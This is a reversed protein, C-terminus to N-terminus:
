DFRCTTVPFPSILILNRVRLLNISFIFIHAHLQTIRIFHFWCFYVQRRNPLSNRTWFYIYEKRAKEMTPQKHFSLLLTESPASRSQKPRICLNYLSPSVKCDSFLSLFWTMSIFNLILMFCKKRLRRLRWSFIQKAASWPAWLM